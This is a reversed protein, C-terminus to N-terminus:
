NFKTTQQQQQNEHNYLKKYLRDLLLESVEENLIDILGRGGQENPLQSYRKTHHQDYKNYPIDTRSSIPPHRIRRLSPSFATVQTIISSKLPSHSSNIDTLHLVIHMTTSLHLISWSSIAGIIWPRLRKRQQPM